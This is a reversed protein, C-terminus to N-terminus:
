QNTKVFNTGVNNVQMVLVLFVLLYCDFEVCDEAFQLLKRMFSKGSKFTGL